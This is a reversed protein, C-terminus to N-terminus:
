NHPTLIVNKKLLWYAISNRDQIFAQNIPLMRNWLTGLGENAALCYKHM